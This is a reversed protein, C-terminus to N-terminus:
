SGGIGLKELLQKTEEPHLAANYSVQGRAHPVEWGVDYSLPTDGEDGLEHMPSVHLTTGDELRHKTGLGIRMRGSPIGVIKSHHKWLQQWYDGSEEDSNDRYRLDHRVLQERPDDHDALFDAFVHDATNHADFVGDANAKEAFAKIGEAPARGYCCRTYVEAYNM